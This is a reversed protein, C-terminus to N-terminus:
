QQQGIIGIVTRFKYELEDIEVFFFCSGSLHMVLINAFTYDIDMVVKLPYQFADFFMLSDDFLFLKSEKM